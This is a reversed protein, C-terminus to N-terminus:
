TLGTADRCRLDWQPRWWAAEQWLAKCRQVERFPGDELLKQKGAFWFLRLGTSPMLFLAGQSGLPPATPWSTTVWSPLATAYVANCWVCGTMAENLALITADYEVTGGIDYDFIPLWADAACPFHEQCPSVNCVLFLFVCVTCHMRPFRRHTPQVPTRNCVYLECLCFGILPIRGLCKDLTDRLM